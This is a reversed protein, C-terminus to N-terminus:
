WLSVNLMINHIHPAFLRCFFDTYTVDTLLSEVKVLLEQFNWYFVSWLMISLSSGYDCVTEDVWLHWWSGSIFSYTVWGELKIAISMIITSMDVSSLLLGATCHISYQNLLNLNSFQSTIQHLLMKETMLPSIRADSILAQLKWM